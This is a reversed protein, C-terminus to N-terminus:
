TLHVKTGTAGRYVDLFKYDAEPFFWKAILGNFGIKVETKGAGDCVCWACKHTNGILKCNHGIDSISLRGLVSLHQLLKFGLLLWIAM